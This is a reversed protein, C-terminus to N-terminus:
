ITTFGYLRNQWYNNTLDAYSVGSSPGSHIFKNGGLYIGVHSIDAGPTAFFVLDYKKPENTPTTAAYQQRSTRPLNIGYKKFYSQVFGSCDYSNPGTAGWQYPKGLYESFEEEDTKRLILYAGVAAAIPLLM